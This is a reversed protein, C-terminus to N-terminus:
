ELLAQRERELDDTIPGHSRGEVFQRVVPEDTHRVEDPTGIFHIRGKYLMGIRDSIKYASQMDHTIAISTVQLRENLDVILDNIVDAMIPDLGTTPEDYFLFDPDMAIARALGVRKRMGGSLSAPMLDETGELGVLALKEKAIERVEDESKRSHRLFGFGVNMWVKMSDFLAAHQFLMGWRKRLEARDETRITQHERGDIWIEGADPEILGNICKILVSKGTGSGGIVCFSEGRLIELDVGDLVVKPGFRKEVGRLLVYAGQDPPPGPRTSPESM